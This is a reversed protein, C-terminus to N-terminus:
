FKKRTLKCRSNKTALVTEAMRIARVTELVDHARVIHAGSEIALIACALSAPLRENANAGSFKGLFSKRSIGLMLPRNLTTFSQLRTLLELNHEATKGFGIGPDLIIQEPGIGQIELMKLRGCFFKGVERVVNKYRPNKQMTQPTGRSHMVVYGARFKSVVEWMEDGSRGAAVDNVISAGAELAAQAVAPKMTDISIPIRTKGALKEIVPIVRRLEETASVPKAGPRTSEGGIDLIEAGEEILKFAHTVARRPNFFKGGDSFSDPTVNVIGMVLAPRPFHFEFQRARFLM